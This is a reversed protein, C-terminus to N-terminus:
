SMPLFPYPLISRVQRFIYSRMRSWSRCTHCEILIFFIYEIIDHLYCRSLVQQLTKIQQRAQELEVSLEQERRTQQQQSTATDSHVPTEERTSARAGDVPPRESATPPVSQKEPLAHAPEPRMKVSAVLDQLHRSQKLAEQLHAQVQAIDSSM